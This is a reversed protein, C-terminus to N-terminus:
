PSQAYLSQSTQILKQNAVAVAETQEKTFKNTRDYNYFGDCELELDTIQTYVSASVDQINNLITVAMIIYKDAEQLPTDVKEYTHCKGPVWEKGKVFAGLGGFEGIMAYQTASPKPDGPNPYDHIDFVDAYKLNNAGGGSDTDVLRGMRDTKKTLDVIDQVRYPADKFVEWCDGENFTEWQVICPHNGRGNIMAKLDAVFYPILDAKAGGYKQVMDQFIVVGVRDAAYYWREANVKQHLRVMNMGVTKVAEIDFALAADTPATYQGDPWWSQDLWGALFTFNGNLFPRKVTADSGAARGPAPVDALEFTRLGFYATVKDGSTSVRLDYLFPSSPSWLKADPVTISVPEGAKGKGSAVVRKGDYVEYEVVEGGAGSGAVSASVRLESTSASNINLSEIYTEPVTELWVTQWIGSSPTYTDGGPSSIASIRQKGHPQVGTDSPDYAYVLIEVDGDASSRAAETIDYSFADYGGTHNGLFKGNVYVSSQWDVAGFQLVLRQSDLELQDAGTMALRYWMRQVIADSSNPAVSSLCSEVPFPVLISDSLTQKFPPNSSDTAPEWEWLGNLNQWTSADGTDRFSSVSSHMEGRVMMPRPYESLVPKSPDVTLGWQTPIEADGSPGGCQTRKWTSALPRQPTLLTAGALGLLFPVLKM